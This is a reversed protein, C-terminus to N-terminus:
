FGSDNNRVELEIRQIGLKDYIKDSSIIKGQCHAAHFSDFVGAGEEIYMAAKLFTPDDIGCINMVSTTIEIFDLNYRKALLMLEIFTVESTTISGKYEELIDKAKEKLWDSPKLLALFFDTDAYIV